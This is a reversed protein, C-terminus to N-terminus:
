ICGLFRELCFATKQELKSNVKTSVGVSSQKIFVSNKDLHLFIKSQKVHAM